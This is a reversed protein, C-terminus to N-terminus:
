HVAIVAVEWRGGPAAVAVVEGPRARLLAAGLPSDASVLGQDPDGEGPPVLAYSVVDGDEDRLTARRGIVAVDPDDVCEGADLVAQLRALRRSAQLLGHPTADDTAEDAHWREVDSRLRACESGLERWAESTLPWAVASTSSRSTIVTM